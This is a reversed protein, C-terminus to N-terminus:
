KARRTAGGGLLWFFAGGGMGGGRGESALSRAAECDVFGYGGGSAEYFVKIRGSFGRSVLLPQNKSEIESPLQLCSTAVPPLQNTQHGKAKLANRSFSAGNPSHGFRAAAQAALARNSPFAVESPFFAFFDFLSSHSDPLSLICAIVTVKRM